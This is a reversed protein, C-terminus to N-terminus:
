FSFGCQACGKENVGPKLFYTEVRYNTAGETYNTASRAPRMEQGDVYLKGGTLAPLDSATTVIVNLGGYVVAGNTLAAISVQPSSGASDPGLDRVRYFRNPQKAPHPVQPALVYNGFDGIFTNTGHSPYDTYLTQWATSGDPNGGLADAYEMQYLHRPQSAWYMLVAREETTQVATFRPPPPESQAQLTLGTFLIIGAVWLTAIFKKM